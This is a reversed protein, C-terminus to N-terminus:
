IARLPIARFPRQAGRDKMKLNLQAATSLPCGSLQMAVESPMLANMALCPWDALSASAGPLDDHPFKRAANMRQLVQGMENISGLLSASLPKALLMPSMQRAEMRALKAPIGIDCLLRELATPLKLPLEVYPAAPFILPLRANESM